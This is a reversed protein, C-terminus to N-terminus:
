WLEFQFQEQLDASPEAPIRRAAPSMWRHIVNKLEETAARIREASESLKTRMRRKITTRTRRDSEVFKWAPEESAERLRAKVQELAMRAREAADQLVSVPAHSGPGVAPDALRHWLLELEAANGDRYATQVEIWVQRKGEDLVGGADPHLRRALRRYYDKLRGGDRRRARERQVLSIAMTAHGCGDGGSMTDMAEAVKLFTEAVEEFAEDSLSHWEGTGGDHPDNGPINGTGDSSDPGSGHRARHEIHERWRQSVYDDPEPLGADRRAKVRLWAAHYSGGRRERERLIESHLQANEEHREGLQKLRALLPGLERHLWIRFAPVDTEYHRALRREEAALDERAKRYTALAANRIPTDDIAVIWRASPSCDCVAGTLQPPKNRGNFGAGVFSM